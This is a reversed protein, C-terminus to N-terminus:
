PNSVQILEDELCFTNQGRLDRRILLPWYGHENIKMICVKYPSQPSVLAAYFNRIRSDKPAFEIRLRVGEAAKEASKFLRACLVVAHPNRSALYEATISRGMRAGPFNQTIIDRDNLGFIDLVPHQVYFPVIGAWEIAVVYDSPLMKNLHTGIIRADEPHFLAGSIQQSFNRDRYVPLFNFGFLIMLLFVALLQNSRHQQITSKALDYVTWIGEQMLLFLLPLVPLIFRFYPMWDGGVAVVYLLHGCVVWAVFRIPKSARGLVFPVVALILVFQSGASAFSLLYKLGGIFQHNLFAVKAYFTNPLLAHYYSFRWLNYLGIGILFIILGPITEKVERDILLKYSILIFVLALGDFRTLGISLLVGGMVWSGIRSKHFDRQYLLVALTVLMTFFTTDMGTMPFTLFSVQFALFLPAILARHVPRSPINGLLYVLWLTITQAAVSIMQVFTIPEIGLWFSPYSLMVWLFSTYGEVREDANFVLGAGNYLNRAYRFGIFSDDILFGPSVVLTTFAVSSIVIVMIVAPSIHRDSFRTILKRLM